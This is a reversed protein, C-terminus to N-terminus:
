NGTTVLRIQGTHFAVHSTRSLLVALRNRTPDRAFDEESVSAHKELWQEPEMGEFATTLVGNVEALATRLETASPEGAVPEDPKELFRDDLGRYMRDGLGLLSFMRDHVAALHGVLYYVRNRGPAVRQQLDDDSMDSLMKDLRGNLQKWSNVAVDTILKTQTM